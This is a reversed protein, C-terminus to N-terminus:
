FDDDDEQELRALEELMKKRQREAYDALTKNYDYEEEQKSSNGCDDDDDTFLGVDNATDEVEAKYVEEKEEVIEADIVPQEIEPVASKNANEEAAIKHLLMDEYNTNQKEIDRNIRMHKTESTKVPKEQKAQEVIAAVERKFKADAQQNAIKGKKDAERLLHWKNMYEFWTYRGNEYNATKEDSLTAVYLRNDREYCVYGCCRPDLRIPMKVVIDYKKERQKEILPEFMGEDEDCKYYLGKYHLGSRDLSAKVPHMLDFFFQNRNGIQMPAICNEIGYKWIEAPVKTINKRIMDETLPYSEYYHKNHKLVSKIVIQRFEYIDLTSKEHHNSDYRKSIHGVDTILSDLESQIEHFFHEVCGKMSGLGPTCLEKQIKLKNCIFSAADSRYESGRDCRLRSPLYGSPWFDDDKMEVGNRKCYEAKDEVLNMLLSTFGINNNNNFGIAVGVVIRTYVDFMAYVIARGVAKSHTGSDVLSLNFENEDVQACNMPGAVYMLTDSLTKRQNNRFERVSTRIKILEEANFVKRIRRYFQEFTPRQTEDWLQGNDYAFYDNNMYDYADKFSEYRNNKLALIYKDMIKRLENTLPIGIAKEALGVTGDAKIINCPRGTKTKYEIEERETIFYRGDVLSYDQMGSHFYRRLVKWFGSKSMGYKEYIGKIAVTFHKSTKIKAFNPFTLDVVEKVMAKYKNYSEKQADTLSDYDFVIEENREFVVFYGKSVGYLVDAVMIEKFILKTKTDIQCMTVKKNAISSIVYTVNDRLDKVTKGAALSFDLIIM